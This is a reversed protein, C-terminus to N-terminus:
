VHAFVSQLKEKFEIKKRRSIPLEQNNLLVVKPEKGLSYEKVYSLNVLYNNNIRFFGKNHLTNEFNKLLTTIVINKEFSFYITTYSSEGQCYIIEETDIIRYDNRSVQVYIKNM